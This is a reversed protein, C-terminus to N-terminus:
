SPSPRLRRLEELQRRLRPPPEAYVDEILTELPPPPAAEAERIARSIQENLKEHLQIEKKEDWLGRAEM